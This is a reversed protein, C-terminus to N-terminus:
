IDIVYLICLRQPLTLSSARRFGKEVSWVEELQMDISEVM